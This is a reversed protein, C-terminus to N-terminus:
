PALGYGAPFLCPRGDGANVPVQDISAPWSCPLVGRAKAAGFLLDAVGAGESGPLWAAVFADVKGLEETVILPRGSLLVAVVPAGLSAAAAIRMKEGPALELDASDGVMEAYPDEGVVVIALDPRFDEPAAGDKSFEVLADAGAAARIGEFITTGPVSSGLVDQWTLTWGGCQAGVDSARPGVVLIRKKGYIPLVGGQNKLVVLSEAVARRAVARREPSGVEALLSRDAYPREFLGAEFKVRLIRRVAEDLRERGIAGGKVLDRMADLYGRYDNPVMFMDIGANFATAIREGEKGPLLSAGAWDSVAFGEFGLEGRLIGTLLRGNGHDPIGNWSSFSVMVCRAGAAIAEAYPAVHISMFDDDSYEADGRDLGGATGGDGAFHKATALVATPSGLGGSQLGRVMAAGLRGVLEPTEGFGEYTRGWREDRPVALCPGFDWRAGTALMELATIRGIEEVLEPDDAAGLGINHPFIVSGRVNNNGHVADVGYLIPIGLRSSLAARQYADIMDAWHEPDNVRPGSGGGSLVSGLGYTAIDSSSALYDRAAQLTQGIKEEVTMRALLDEVRAEVPLSADQYPGAPSPERAEAPAAPPASSACSALCLALLALPALLPARHARSRIRM